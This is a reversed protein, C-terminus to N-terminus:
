ATVDPAPRRATHLLHWALGVWAQSVLAHTAALSESGGILNLERTARAAHTTALELAGDHTIETTDSPAPVADPREQGPM